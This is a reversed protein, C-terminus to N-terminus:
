LLTEFLDLNSLMLRVSEDSDFLKKIIQLVEADEVVVQLSVFCLFILFTLFM